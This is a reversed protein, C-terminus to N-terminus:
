PILLFGQYALTRDRFYGAIDGADNIAVPWTGEVAV